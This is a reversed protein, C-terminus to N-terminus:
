EDVDRPLDAREGRQKRRRDQELGREDVRRAMRKAGPRRHEPLRSRARKSEPQVTLTQLCVQASQRTTQLASLARNGSARAGLRIRSAHKSSTQSTQSAWARKTAREIAPSCCHTAGSRGSRISIGAAAPRAGSDDRRRRRGHSLTHDRRPRGNPLSHDLDGRFVLGIRM